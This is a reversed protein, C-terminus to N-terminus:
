EVVTQIFNQDLTISVHNTVADVGESYSGTGVEVYDVDNSWTGLILDDRGELTYTLGSYPSANKFYVYELVNSGGSEARSGVPLVGTNQDDLPDGGFAFEYFNSADDMDPDDAPDDNGATLGSQGAWYEYGTQRENKYLRIYDIEFNKSVDQGVVDLRINTIDDSAGAIDLDAIVWGNTDATVAYASQNAIGSLVLITGTISWNTSTTGPDGPNGNLQRARFEMRSWAGDGVSVTNTYKSQPDIGTLDASTMVGEVDDIDNTALAGSVHASGFWGELDGANFEWAVALKEAFTPQTPGAYLRVYDIEFNYNTSPTNGLPDLRMSNLTNVGFGSADFTAIIWNDGDNSVRCFPNENEMTKFNTFPDQMSGLTGQPNFLQSATAVDPNGDIHRIRMELTRWSNGELDIVSGPDKAQNFFLQGDGATVDSCTLVTESGNIAAAVYVNSLAMNGTTSDWGENDGPTNFEWAAVLERAVPKGTFVLQTDGAALSLEGSSMNLLELSSNLDDLEAASFTDSALEILVLTQEADTEAFVGDIVLSRSGAFVISDANITSVAGDAGLKYTVTTEKGGSGWTFQGGVDLTGDDGIINLWGETLSLGAQIETTGGSVEFIGPENVGVSVKGSLPAGLSSSVFLSGSKVQVSSGSQPVGGGAPNIQVQRTVLSGGDIVLTGYGNVIGSVTQNVNTMVTGSLLTVRNKTGRGVQFQGFSPVAQSVYMDKNEATFLANDADVPVTATSWNNTDLWDNPDIGNGNYSRNAAFVTGCCVSVLMVLLLKKM